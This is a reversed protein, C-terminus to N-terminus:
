RASPKAEKHMKCSVVCFFWVFKGRRGVRRAPIVAMSRIDCKNFRPDAHLREEVTERATATMYTGFEELGAGPSVKFFVNFVGTDPNGSMEALQCTVTREEKHAKPYQITVQDAM